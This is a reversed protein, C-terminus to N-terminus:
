ILGKVEQKIRRLLAQMEPAEQRELLWDRIFQWRGLFLLDNKAKESQVHAVEYDFRRSIQTVFNLDEDALQKLFLDNRERLAELNAKLHLMKEKELQIAQPSCHQAMLSQIRTKLFVVENKM